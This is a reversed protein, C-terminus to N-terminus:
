DRLAQIIRKAQKPNVMRAKLHNGGKEYVTLEVGGGFGFVSPVQLRTAVNTIDARSLSQNIRPGEISIMHDSLVLWGDTCRTRIM